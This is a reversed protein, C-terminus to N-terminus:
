SRSAPPCGKRCGHRLRVRTSRAPSRGCSRRWPPAASGRCRGKLRIPAAGGLRRLAIGVTGLLAMFPLLDIAEIAALGIRVDTRAVYAEYRTLAVPSGEIEARSEEPLLTTANANWACGYGGGCIPWAGPTLGAVAIVIPMVAASLLFVVGALRCLFAKRPPLFYGSPM